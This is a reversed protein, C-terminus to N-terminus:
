GLSGGLHGQEDRKISNTTGKDAGGSVHAPLMITHLSTSNSHKPYTQTGQTPLARRHPPARNYLAPTLRNDTGGRWTDRDKEAGGREQAVNPSLKLHSQIKKHTKCWLPTPIHWDVNCSLSHILLSAKLLHQQNPIGGTGCTKNNRENNHGRKKKQGLHFNFTNSFFFTPMPYGPGNGSPHNYTLAWLLRKPAIPSSQGKDLSNQATKLNRFKRRTGM